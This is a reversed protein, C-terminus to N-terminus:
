KFWSSVGLWTSFSSAYPQIIAVTIKAITM